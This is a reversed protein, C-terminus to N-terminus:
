AAKRRGPQVAAIFELEPHNALARQLRFDTEFLVLPRQEIDVLCTAGSTREFEDPDFDPNGIWRAHQFKLPELRVDVNYEHKLRYQMVEFQLQGVAGLIPERELRHRDFFVQVVGEEALQDLGKKLQKRKFPETLVVRVFREPSFRPIGDFQVTPDESLTDGIRLVGPDWLGVIDGPFAEEILTREQAKLQLSKNLSLSKGTRVHIVDMGRTFRGSVIRVFAIRDRHQPDMNAQIKFVFGSFFPAEPGVDGAATHRPLPPPALDLFRDLFPEIGFNTLASGFFVPSLNGARFTALDFTTGAGHLLAIEDLLQQHAHAGIAQGLAADDLDSVQMIARHSASEGREFRLLRNTERDYVGQFEPGSGIPWNLPTCPMDLVREIEDLLDLPERGHRDLKNIFTVIPLQRARCVQFLKITQPEVGKASDILMVACDAAALTRYTDESFDNHGPTDLLNLQFDRYPFQMVSTAISIGRERELAMWDSTAHREARRQRVSGALRVAGGYLLLKETLTTKGADPHSIIAFTRRRGAETRIEEALASM